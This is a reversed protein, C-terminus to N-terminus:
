PNRVIKGFIQGGGKKGSWTGAYQERYLVVRATYTGMGPISLDTLTIVPTDGAWEINVPLPLPLDRGGYQLRSRMLWTDGTRKTVGEIVYKEEGVIKDDHLRSSRGVLTVGNMMEKFMQERQAESLPKKSCARPLIVFGLVIGTIILLLNKLM